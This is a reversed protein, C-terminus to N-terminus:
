AKVKLQIVSEPHKQVIDLYHYNRFVTTLSSRYTTTDVDLTSGIWNAITVFSFNGMLITDDAVFTSVILPMEECLWQSDSFRMGQALAVGAVNSLFATQRLRAYMQPSVIAVCERSRINAELLKQLAAEIDADSLTGSAATEMKTATAEVEAIVEKELSNAVNELLARQVWTGIDPSS